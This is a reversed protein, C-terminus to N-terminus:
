KITIGDYVIEIAGAKFNTYSSWDQQNFRIDFKLGAESPSLTVADKFSIELYGDNFTGKVSSTYNVYWPAKNLTIGATDCWFSQPTNGDKTYYYRIKLLSLDLPATGSATVTYQQAISGGIQNKVTVIPVVTESPDM